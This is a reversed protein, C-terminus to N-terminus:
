TFTLMSINSAYYILLQLLHVHSDLYQGAKIHLQPLNTRDPNLPPDLYPTQSFCFLSEVSLKELVLAFSITMVISAVVQHNWLITEYYVLAVSVITSNYVSRVTKFQM